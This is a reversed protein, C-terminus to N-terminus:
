NIGGNYDTELAPVSWTWRNNEDVTTIFATQATFNGGNPYTKRNIPENWRKMDFWDFEEGWLELARYRKIEEWLEEGTLTCTYNADRGSDKNLAILAKQALEPKNLFYNAEAEILLMESSRFHNM